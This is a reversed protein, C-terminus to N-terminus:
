KGSRISEWVQEAVEKLVSQPLKRPQQALRSALGMSMEMLVEEPWDKLIGGKSRGSFRRMFALEVEGLPEKAPPCVFGAHEYQELFRMERLHKRYFAYWNMWVRICAEKADMEPSYGEFFSTRKLTYIREYLAQIIEEKSAFYHYIVGASAGSRKAILSMPADHFGGEVVVDLMADLIADRKKPKPKSEM